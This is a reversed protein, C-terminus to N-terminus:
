KAADKWQEATFAFPLSGMLHFPQTIPDTGISVVGVIRGRMDFIASGSDGHTSSLDYYTFERRLIPDDDGVLAEEPLKGVGSVTGFRLQDRLFEPNGRIYVAQGLTVPMGLKAWTKFTTEVRILAHDSDDRTVSVVNVAPQGNLQVARVDLLCHSATLVVHPGVATASCHGLGTELLYTTDANYPPHAECAAPLAALLLAAISALFLRPIM